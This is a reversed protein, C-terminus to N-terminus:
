ITEEPVPAVPIPQCCSSKSAVFPLGLKNILPTHTANDFCPIRLKECMQDIVNQPSPVPLQNSQCYDVIQPYLLSYNKTTVTFSPIKENGTVQYSWNEPPVTSTDRISYSMPQTTESRTQM